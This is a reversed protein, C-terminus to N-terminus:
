WGAVQRIHAETIDFEKCKDKVLKDFGEKKFKKRDFFDYGEMIPAADVVKNVDSIIKAVAKAVEKPTRKKSM